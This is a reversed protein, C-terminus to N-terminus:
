KFVQMIIEAAKDTTDNKPFKGKIAATLETAAKLLASSKTLTPMTLYKHKFFVTDGVQESRTEKVWIHHFRYHELLIGM